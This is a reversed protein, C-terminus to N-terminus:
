EEAERELLASMREVGWRYATTGGDIRVVRHCPIAVAIVNAACANAVARASRPSGIRRAIESYSVREGAPIERLAQWVRQQFATGRVDLPLDLGLKPIEIFGIIKAVMQEFGADGGILEARPFLDQLDQALVNPDEGMMIACVGRESAAVLISGLTCEGVAFRITVGTGGTKYRKPTMGLLRNSEEYFRSNANYGAEYIADTVSGDGVLAKRVKQARHANAYAKPTLGTVAKFVRHLHFTSMRAQSALARLSPVTEANEIYRCLDAVLAASDADFPTKVSRTKSKFEFRSQM